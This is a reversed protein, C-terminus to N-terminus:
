FLKRYQKFRNVYILKKHSLKIVEADSEPPTKPGGKTTAKQKEAGELEEEEGAHLVVTEEGGDGYDPSKPASLSRPSEPPSKDAVREVEEIGGEWDDGTSEKIVM